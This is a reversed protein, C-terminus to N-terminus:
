TKDAAVNDREMAANAIKAFMVDRMASGKAAKSDRGHEIYLRRVSACCADLVEQSVSSM